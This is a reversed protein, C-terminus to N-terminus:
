KRRVCEIDVIGCNKRACVLITNTSKQADIFWFDDQADRLLDFETGSEMRDIFDKRDWEVTQIYTGDENTYSIRLSDVTRFSSKLLITGLLYDNFVINGMYAKIGTTENVSTLLPVNIDTRALEMTDTDFCSEIYNFEKLRIGVGFLKNGPNKIESMSAPFCMLKISNGSNDVVRVIEGTAIKSMDVLYMFTSEQVPSMTGLVAPERLISVFNPIAITSSNLTSLMGSYYNTGTNLDLYSFAGNSRYMIEAATPTGYERRLTYGDFYSVLASIYTENPDLEDYLRPSSSPDDKRKHYYKVARETPISLSDDTVITYAGETRKRYDQWINADYERADNTYYGSIGTDFTDGAVFALCTYSPKPSHYPEPNANTGFQMPSLRYYVCKFSHVSVVRSDDTHYPSSADYIFYSSVENGYKGMTEFSHPLFVAFSRDIHLFYFDGFADVPCKLSLTFGYYEDSYVPVQDDPNETKLAVSKGSMIPIGVQNKLNKNEDYEKSMTFEPSGVIGNTLTCFFYLYMKSSKEYLVYLKGIYIKKNISLIDYLFTDERIDILEFYDSSYTLLHNIICELVKLRFDSITHCREKFYQRSLKHILKLM